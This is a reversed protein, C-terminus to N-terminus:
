KEICCGQLHAFFWLVIFDRSTIGMCSLLDSRVQDLRFFNGCFRSAVMIVGQLVWLM